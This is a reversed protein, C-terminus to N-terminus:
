YRDCDDNRSFASAIALALFMLGITGILEMLAAFIGLFGFNKIKFFFWIAFYVVGVWFAILAILSDKHEVFYADWGGVLIFLFAINIFMLGLDICEKKYKRLTYENLANYLFMYIIFGLVGFGFWVFFMEGEKKLAIIFSYISL